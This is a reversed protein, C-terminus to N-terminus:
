TQIDFMHSVRKLPVTVWLQGSMSGTIVGKFPGGVKSVYDNPNGNKNPEWELDTVNCMDSRIIILKYTGDFKDNKSLMFQYDYHNKSLHELKEELTKFSTTRSGSYEVCPGLNHSRNNKRVGSKCSIRSNTFDVIRMDEGIKHSNDPKWTTAYGIDSFSNALIEEWITGTIPQRLVTHFTKINKKIMMVLNNMNSDNWLFSELTPQVGIHLHVHCLNNIWTSVKVLSEKM